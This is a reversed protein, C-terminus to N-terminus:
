QGIAVNATLQILEDAPHCTINLTAHGIRQQAPTSKINVSPRTCYGRTQLGVLDQTLQTQMSILTLGDLSSQGIYNNARNLLTQIVVGMCRVRVMNTYDSFNTAATLDHLLAPNQNIGKSRLVSIKAETLADLQAPLPNWVQAMRVQKNTLGSAADLGSLFGAVIGAGNGVYNAAYATTLFGFDAFVHIYAGADNPNNNGDFVIPGDYADNTTVFLGPKRFGSAHDTALANLKTSTIGTLYPIGLLGGGDRVANGAVNYVPLFGVWRRTDTLNVSAPLSTGIVAVAKPGIQSIEACFSAITHAFNVEFFGAAVRAAASVASMPTVTVGASNKTAGAWQYINDNYQDQTVLLWDLADRNTAPNNKVTTADGTVYFAVNPADVIADPVYVIKVQIGQLLDFAQRLAIYIERKSLSTGDVPAVITPVTTHLGATEAAAATITVSGTLLPTQGTGLPLGVNGAVAIAGSEGSAASISIDGTDVGANAVNSFQIEGDKWVNLVGAAYWIQYRAAADATVDSFTIDFGPTTASTTQDAGVGLLQMPKTGIRYALVNDSNTAVEAAARFLSGAFGFEASTVGLDSVQFPTSVVGQGATGLVLVADDSPQFASNLGGDLTNVITGPLYNFPQM